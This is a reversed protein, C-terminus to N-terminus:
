GRVARDAFVSDINDAAAAQSSPTSFSPLDSWGSHGKDTSEGDIGDFKVFGARATAAPTAFSEIDSWKGHGQDASEGEVGDFKIYAAQTETAPLSFSQIDSWKEHGRDSSEGEVGDLKIYAATTEVPEVPADLQMATTKLERNELSEGQLKRTRLISIRRSESPIKM